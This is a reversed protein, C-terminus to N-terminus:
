MRSKGMDMEFIFEASPVTSKTNAGVSMNVMNEELREVAFNKNFIGLVIDDDLVVGAWRGARNSLRICARAPRALSADHHYALRHLKERWTKWKEVSFNSDTIRRASEDPLQSIRAKEDLEPPDASLIALRHSNERMWTECLPLLQEVPVVNPKVRDNVKLSIDDVHDPRDEESLAENFLWVGCRLLEVPCVGVAPLTALWRTLNELKPVSLKFISTTWYTQIHDVFYPLDTWLRQGNPLIAEERETSSADDQKVRTITGLEKVKLILVVLDNSSPSSKSGDKAADIFKQWLRRLSAEFNKLSIKRAQYTDSLELVNNWINDCARAGPQNEVPM